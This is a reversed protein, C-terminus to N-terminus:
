LVHLCTDPISNVCETMIEATFPSSRTLKMGWDGGSPLKIGSFSQTPHQTPELAVTSM